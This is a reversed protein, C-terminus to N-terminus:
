NAKSAEGVSPIRVDTLEVILQVEIVGSKGERQEEEVLAQLLLHVRVDPDHRSRPISDQGSTILSTDCQLIQSFLVLLIQRQGM